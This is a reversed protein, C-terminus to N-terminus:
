RLVNGFWQSGVGKGCVGYVCLMAVVVCRFDMVVSGLMVGFALSCFGFKLRCKWV